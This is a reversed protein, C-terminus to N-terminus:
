WIVEEALKDLMEEKVLLPEAPAFPAISISEIGNGYYDYLKSVANMYVECDNAGEAFILGTDNETGNTDDNYWLVKFKIFM